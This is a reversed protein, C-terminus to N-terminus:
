AGLDDLETRREAAREEASALQAETAKQALARCKATREAQGAEADRKARHKADHVQGLKLITATGDGHYDTREREEARKPESVSMLVREGHALLGGTFQDLHDLDLPIWRIQGDRVRPATGRKAPDLVHRVRLVM